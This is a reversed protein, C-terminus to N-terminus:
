LRPASGSREVEADDEDRSRKKSEGQAEGQAEADDADRPPRDGEASMTDRREVKRRWTSRTYRVDYTSDHKSM